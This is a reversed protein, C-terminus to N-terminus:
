PAPQSAPKLVVQENPVGSDVYLLTGDDQREVEILPYQRDSAVRQNMVETVILKAGKPTLHVDGSKSTNSEFLTFTRDRRVHLDIKALTRQIVPDEDAVGTLDRYGVWRGSVDPGTSCGALIAWVSVLLAIRV